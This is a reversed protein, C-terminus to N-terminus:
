SVPRGATQVRGDDDAFTVRLQAAAPGDYRVRARAGGARQLDPLRLVACMVELMVTDALYKGFCTRPGFGFHVYGDLPRSGCFHWPHEFEEPDFMAGLLGVLMTGGAPALRARATDKAVITDRPITRVLLPLMPRFRLAEYIIQQLQRRLDDLETM